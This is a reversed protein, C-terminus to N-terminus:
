TGSPGFRETRIDSAPFGMIVLNNAVNEVLATPGCIYVSPPTEFKQTIETLMAQDIRRQFGQWSLPAQRTFTFFLEFTPDDAALQQLEQSYILNEPTRVSFLLKTPPHANAFRRHRLMSMLPVVGSGGAILFLPRKNKDAQWVFYGGIPGRVEIPDGPMLFEHLYASIEGDDIVEITLDIEGTQEPASAISYSRQAQYGDPATLRLDYHQGALHPTWNPLQLTFTKVRPNEITVAKVTAIQWQM